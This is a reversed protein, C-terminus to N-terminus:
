RNLAAARRNFFSKQEADLFPLEDITTATLLTENNISYTLFAALFNVWAEIKKFDTTGAHQRFEITKHRSYAELNVKHYRGDIERRMDEFTPCWMMEIREAHVRITRCWMSENGRRSPAMFSDIVAEIRGYNAIIRQWQAATFEAAGFHVHLGCSKNVKAGAENIVECVTELSSLDHLIPSVIECTGFSDGRSRQISSDSMFKYSTESDHHNYNNYDDHTQIGREACIERVRYRNVNTCEIEVGVTFHLARAIARNAARRQSRTAPERPPISAIVIRYTNEADEKRMGVEKTLWDIKSAKSGRAIIKARIEDITYNQAM